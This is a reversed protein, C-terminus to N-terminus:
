CVPHSLAAASLWDSTGPCVALGRQLLCGCSPCLACSFLVPRSCKRIGQGLFLRFPTWPTCLPRQRFGGIKIFLFFFLSKGFSVLRGMDRYSWERRNHQLFCSLHLDGAALEASHTCLQWM